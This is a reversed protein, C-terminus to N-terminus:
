YLVEYKILEFAKAAEPTPFLPYVHPLNEEVYISHPAKDKELREKFRMIDPHLMDEAGSFIVIEGLNIFSGYLPSIFPDYINETRAWKNGLIKLGALGVMFESEKYNEMEPNDMSLDMWPSILILKEPQKEETERLQLALSLAMNGGSSDGMLIVKRVTPDATYQTYLSLIDEYADKACYSTVKLYIPVIVPIKTQSILKNLFSWHQTKPQDIFGGGPFYFILTDSENEFGMTLYQTKGTHHNEVKCDMAPLEIDRLNSERMDNIAHYCKETSEYIGNFDTVDLYVSAIFANISTKQVYRCYVSLALIVSLTVATNILFFFKLKKLM